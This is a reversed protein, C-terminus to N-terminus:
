ITPYGLARGEVAPLGIVVPYAWYVALGTLSMVALVEILRLLLFRYLGKIPISRM